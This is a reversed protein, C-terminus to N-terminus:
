LFSGLHFEKFMWIKSELFSKKSCIASEGHDDGSKGKSQCIILVVRREKESKIFGICKVSALEKGGHLSQRIDNRNSKEM